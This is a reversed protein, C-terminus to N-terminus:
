EAIGLSEGFIDRQMREIEEKAEEEYMEDFSRLVRRCLTVGM